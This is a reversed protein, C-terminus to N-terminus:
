ADKRGNEIDMNVPEFPEENFILSLVDCIDAECLRDADHNIIFRDMKQNKPQIQAKRKEFYDMFEAYQRDVAYRRRRTTPRKAALIRGKLCSFACGIEARRKNRSKEDGEGNHVAITVPGSIIGCSSEHFKSEAHVLNEAVQGTDPQGTYSQIASGNVKTHAKSDTQVSEDSVHGLDTEIFSELDEALPELSSYISDTKVDDYDLVTVDKYVQARSKVVPFMLDRSISHLAAYSTSQHPTSVIGSSGDFGVTSWVNCEDNFVKELMEDDKTEQLPDKERFVLPELLRQFICETHVNTNDSPGHNAFVSDPNELDMPESQKCKQVKTTRQTEDDVRDSQPKM